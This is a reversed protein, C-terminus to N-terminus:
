LIKCLGHRIRLLSVSDFRSGFLQVLSRNIHRHMVSAPSFESLACTAMGPFCRPASICDLMASALSIGSFPRSKERPTERRTIGRTFCSLLCPHCLLSSIDLLRRLIWSKSFFLDAQLHMWVSRARVEQKAPGGWCAEDDDGILASGLM